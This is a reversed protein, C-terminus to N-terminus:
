GQDDHLRGRCAAAGRRGRTGGRRVALLRATGIRARQEGREVFRVLVLALQQVFAGLQVPPLAFRIGLLWSRKSTGIQCRLTGTWAASSIGVQSRLHLPENSSVGSFPAAKLDRVTVEFGRARGSARRWVGTLTRAASSRGRCM